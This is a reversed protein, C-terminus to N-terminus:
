ICAPKAPSALRYYYPRLMVYYIHHTYTYATYYRYNHVYKCACSLCIYTYPVGTCNLIALHTMWPLYLPVCVSLMTSLYICMINLCWWWQWTTRMWAALKRSHTSMLMLCIELLGSVVCVYQWYCETIQQRVRCWSLHVFVTNGVSMVGGFCSWMCLRSYVACIESCVHFVFSCHITLLRHLYIWLDLHLCTRLGGNSSILTACSRRLRSM